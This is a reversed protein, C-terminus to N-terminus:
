LKVGTQQAITFIEKHQSRDDVLLDVKQFGFKKVFERYFASEKHLIDETEDTQLYIDIDGGRKTLDARSGFIWVKDSKFFQQALQKISAIQEDNLRVKNM